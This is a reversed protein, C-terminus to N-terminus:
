RRSLLPSTHEPPPIHRMHCHGGTSEKPSPEQGTSLSLCAYMSEAVHAMIGQGEWSRKVEGSRKSRRPNECYWCLEGVPETVRKRNVSLTVRKRNVNLPYNASCHYTRPLVKCDLTSQFPKASKSVLWVTSEIQHMAPQTVSLM